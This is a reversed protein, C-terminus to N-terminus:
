EIRARFPRRVPGNSNTRAELWGSLRKARSDRPLKWSCTAIGARGSGSIRADLERGDITAHCDVGFRAVANGAATVRMSADLTKGAHPPSPRLTVKGAKAKLSAIPVTVLETTRLRLDRVFVDDSRNTDGRVLNSASSLFVVFRGDGSIAAASSAGNAQTAATGVSVRETTGAVRDRVFVDNADNTDRPALNTSSSVFVVYRGDDSISAGESYQTGPKETSSVSVLETAGGNRDSVLVSSQGNFAVHRGDSSVDVLSSQRVDDGDRSVRLTTGMRRDRVFVDWGGNTDGPVLNSAESSFAVYRGDGSLAGYGSQGNAQVGDSGVNARETTGRAVDRVFVDWAFNTDGDILNRAGSTFLVLRGDGSLGVGGTYIEIPEGDITPSVLRTTRRGRDHVYVACYHVCGMFAAYRGDASISAEDAGSFDGVTIAETTGTGRDRVFVDGSENKDGFALYDWASSFAVYRGDLNASCPGAAAGACLVVAGLAVGLLLVGWSRLGVNGHM